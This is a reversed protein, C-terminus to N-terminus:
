ITKDIQSQRPAEGTPLAQAALQGKQQAKVIDNSRNQEASQEPATAARSTELTSASINNVVAQGIGNTRGAESLGQNNVHSEKVVDPTVERDPLTQVNTNVLNSADAIM